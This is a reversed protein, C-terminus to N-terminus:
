RISPAGRRARAGDRSEEPADKVDRADLGLESREVRQGALGVEPVVVLAGLLYLALARLQARGDVAPLALAGLEVVGAYEELQRDLAVRVREDLAARLDVARLAGHRRELHLLHEAALV